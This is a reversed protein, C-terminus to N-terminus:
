AKQVFLIPFIHSNKDIFHKNIRSAPNIKWMTLMHNIKFQINCIATSTKNYAGGRGSTSKETANRHNTDTPVITHAESHDSIVVGSFDPSRYLSNYGLTKGQL